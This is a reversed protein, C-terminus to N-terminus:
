AQIAGYVEFVLGIGPLTVLTDGDAIIRRGGQSLCRNMLERWERPKRDVEKHRAIGDIPEYTFGKM